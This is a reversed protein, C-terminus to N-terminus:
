RDLHDWLTFLAHTPLDRDSDQCFLALAEAEEDSLHKSPSLGRGAAAGCDCNVTIGNRTKTITGWDGSAINLKTIM